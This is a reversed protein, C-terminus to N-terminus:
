DKVNLDYTYSIFIFIFILSGGGEGVLFYALIVRKNLSKLLFSELKILKYM